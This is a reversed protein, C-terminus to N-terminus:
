FMLINEGNVVVRLKQILDRDPNNEWEEAEPNVPLAISIGILTLVFFCKFMELFKM